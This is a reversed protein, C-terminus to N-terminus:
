KRVIITFEHLPYDHLLSVYKSYNNKCYDFFYGPDAYYLHDRMFEIDSYKTLMNFSFGKVSKENIENLISLIYETWVSIEQNLKVNFVGSSVTYDYQQDGLSGSWKTHANEGFTAKARILMEESIDYGFYQVDTFNSKIVNLMAGYGCGYDLISFNSQNSVVGLLLEFRLKQSDESNWDVGKASVGHEIIKSSYYNEVQDLLHKKAM